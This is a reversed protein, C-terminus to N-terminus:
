SHSLGLASIKHMKKDEMRTCQHLACLLANKQIKLLLEVRQQAVLMNTGITQFFFLVCEGMFRM